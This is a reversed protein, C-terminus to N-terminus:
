AALEGVMDSLTQAVGRLDHDSPATGLRDLLDRKTIVLLAGECDQEQGSPRDAVQARGGLVVLECGRERGRLLESVHTEDIM